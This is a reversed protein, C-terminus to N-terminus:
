IAAHGIADRQKLTQNLISIDRWNHNLTVTLRQLEDFREPDVSSIGLDEKVQRLDQITFPIHVCQATPGAVEQIHCIRSVSPDQNFYGPIELVQKYKEWHSTVPEVKTTLPMESHTM